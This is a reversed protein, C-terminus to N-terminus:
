EGEIIKSIFLLNILYDIRNFDNNLYLHGFIAELGTAIKYTIISTNKPKHNSKHNKARKFISIEEENLIDNELLYTVFKAQGKASVYKIVVKQIENVNGLSIFHDRVKLEYISDGIYALVLVNM